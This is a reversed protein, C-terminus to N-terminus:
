LQIGRQAPIKELLEFHTRVSAILEGRQSINAERIPGLRGSAGALHDIRHPDVGMIRACTADVAPLNAGMVLVGAHRPKGMIPGDGEMGEIGDVIALHPRFSANIDLIASEIGHHHLVNKPWGYFAGPMLGFLNKMSLTVGTWHHTKMKPMSVVWDAQRLSNPFTLTKLHTRSGANAVTYGSDYNLDVFPVGDEHLIDAFGSEELVLMSDRCHGAGEAVVIRTAGLHLFAEIAGRVVLPHTNIHTCGQRPEVLNPKLLIRRGLIEKETIGLERLGSLIISAMDVDYTEARAIFTQARLGRETFRRL